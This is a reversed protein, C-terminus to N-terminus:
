GARRKSASRRWSHDIANPRSTDPGPARRCAIRSKVTPDCGAGTNASTGAQRPPVPFRVGTDPNGRVRVQSARHSIPRSCAPPKDPRLLSPAFRAQGAGAPLRENTTRGSPLAPTTDRVPAVPESCHIFFRWEGPISSHRWMMGASAPSCTVWRAVTDADDPKEGREPLRSSRIRERTSGCRIVGTRPSAVADEWTLVPGAASQGRERPPSMWICSATATDCPNDGDEPSCLEIM